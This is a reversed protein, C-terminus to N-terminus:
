GSASRRDKKKDSKREKVHALISFYGKKLCKQAKMCSIINLSTNSKDGQIIITEGNPIPIRIAKDHCIIEAHYKSLWDMGIVVDFSGLTVPMLDISFSHDALNLICGRFIKNTSMLKGNALEVTYKADLRDSMINLSSSFEESIFSKDAGTDFLVFAYYDNLLFTGTVLNPDNRAEEPTIVFARGRAPHKNMVNLKPCTNKWHDKGGCNFCGGVPIVTTAPTRCDKTVHNNRKCKDCFKCPGQHYRKCKNCVAHNGRNQNPNSPGANYAKIADPRRFPQPNFNRNGEWKRKNDVIRVETSKSSSGLRIQANNLDHALRIAEALETPKSSMVNGQISLPLGWIYRELRKYMPTVMTPCLVSLEHFRKTYATINNGKVVLNWFEVELKQLEGRPCYERRMLDKVDEWPTNNAQDIGITNSHASWWSLATGTLTGTAFKVRNNDSCECLRFVSETKEFWQLLGVAGETGQFSLPKCNSFDKYSGGSRSSSGGTSKSVAATKGKKGTDKSAEVALIEAVQDAILTDLEEQTMTITEEVEETHPETVIPRTAKTVKPQNVKKTAKKKQVTETTRIPETTRESNSRTSRRLPNATKPAM